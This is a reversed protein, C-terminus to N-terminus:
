KMLHATEYFGVGDPNTAGPGKGEDFYFSWPALGSKSRKSALICTRTLGKALRHYQENITVGLMEAEALLELLGGLYCSHYTMKKQLLSEGDDLVTVSSYYGRFGLASLPDETTVSEEEEKRKRKEKRRMRWSPRRTTTTTTTTSTTTTPYNGFRWPKRMTTSTKRIVFPNHSHYDDEGEEEEDTWDFDDDFIDNLKEKREKKRNTIEVPRVYLLTEKMEEDEFISSPTETATSTRTRPRKGIGREDSYKHASSKALLITPTFNAFMKARYASDVADHFARLAESDAFETLLYSKGLAAYFQRGSWGFDANNTAVLRDRNGGSRYVNSADVNLREPYLGNDPDVVRKLLASRMRNSRRVLDSEEPFLHELYAYELLQGGAWTLWVTDDYSVSRNPNFHEYPLGLPLLVSVNFNKLFKLFAVINTSSM